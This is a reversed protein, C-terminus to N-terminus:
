EIYDEVIKKAEEFGKAVKALYHKDNLYSIWKKQHESLVGGERRKLEIYLGHYGKSPLPIEIDPFGPSVGMKKLKIAELFNRSGGNASASFKIGKIMLWEVFLIQEESETPLYKFSKM